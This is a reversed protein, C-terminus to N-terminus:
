KYYSALIMKQAVALSLTVHIGGVDILVSGNNVCVVIVREGASLQLRSASPPVALIVGWEGAQMEALTM